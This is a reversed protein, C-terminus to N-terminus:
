RQRLGNASTRDAVASSAGNAMTNKKEVQGAQGDQEESKKDSQDKTKSVVKPPPAVSYVMTGGLVLAGGIALGWSVGSGYFWVSIALSVAKRLTLILNVTTSSVRQFPSTTTLLHQKRTHVSCQGLM